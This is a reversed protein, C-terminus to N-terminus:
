FHLGISVGLRRDLRAVEIDGLTSDRSIWDLTGRVYLPVVPTDYGIWAGYEAILDVGNVDNTIRPQFRDMGGIGRYHSYEVYGGLSAGGISAEARLRGSLGMSYEYGQIILVSKLADFPHLKRYGPLALSQVSAFDYRVEGLFRTQLRGLGLWLGGSAGVIDTSTYMDHTGGYTRDVYRMGMSMGAMEAHGTKGHSVARFDQAYAGALTGGFRMENDTNGSPNSSLKIQMETFNANAFLKHFRGPRLFGTMAVIEADADFGKLTDFRNGNVYANSAAYGLRFRHWYASSFGLADPPLRATGSNPNPKHPHLVSPLGLTYDALANAWSGGGPASNLYESLQFFFAGAPIGASPTFILDNISAQERWELAFEWFTSAFATYLISDPVNLANLRSDWFSLGGALGHMVFNTFATNNDFHLAHLSLRDRFTPNDWDFQNPAPYRWYNALQIGLILMVEALARVHHPEYTTEGFWARQTPGFPRKAGELDVFYERDTSESGGLAAGGMGLDATAAPAAVVASEPHPDTQAYAARTAFPAAASALILTLTAVGKDFFRM